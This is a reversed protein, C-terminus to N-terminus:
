HTTSQIGNQHNCMINVWKQTGLLEKACISSKANFIKEKYRLTTSCAHPNKSDSLDANLDLSM